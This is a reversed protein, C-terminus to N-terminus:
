MLCAHSSGIMYVILNKVADMNRHEGIKNVIIPM